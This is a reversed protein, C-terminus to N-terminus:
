LPLGSLRKSPPESPGFCMMSSLPGIRGLPHSPRRLFPRLSAIPFRSKVVQKSEIFHSGGESIIVRPVGFRPFIQRKLFKSVVRPDNTPSAIAKLWKSVYDISVLIFHNSYSSPFPGMFDIGWVDFLEVELIYNLPMEHRRSINGRRQCRDCKRVFVEVDRFLTPWYFGSHLVKAVTKGTGAHGGCPLDHCHALISEPEKSPVRRCIVSDVCSRYLFPDDWFYYKVDHFFKKRQNSNLGHPEVGCALFNVIDAYWPSDNCSVVLLQDDPLSDNIPLSIPSDGLELRSLHDAVSNESDSKDRIELDFEQLLLIWRILRSKSDKKHLLHRLAAHDFYIIVKSGVLYSRFKELDFVIALLEKETTSYNMQAPDLTEIKARDVEIGRNSVVHGLIVGETVVFHCKKWNLVLHVEQCRHLVKSLNSLCRDFDPGHVSFEDMFVELSKGIFSFFIAIMCRQFTTPANCLGFPMRRYAFTGYLCTFTTKEKDNPPCSNSPLRISCARPQDSRGHYERQCGDREVMFESTEKGGKGGPTFQGAGLIQEDFCHYGLGKEVLGSRTNGGLGEDKGHLTTIVKRWLAGEENKFHWWWNVLLAVNHAELSGVGLGGKQVNNVVSEWAVWSIKTQSEKSGWFFKRRVGELKIGTITSKNWNIKLGLALHFWHLIAILNRINVEEWKGLFIADDAYHLNALMPGNNRLPIGHFIGIAMSEKIAAILGEMAVILLFPSLPDGQQVGKELWFQLIPSNNVLVSVRASSIIGNIWGIWIHDEMEPEMFGEPSKMYIVEEYLFTAKVDMQHLEMNYHAVSAM